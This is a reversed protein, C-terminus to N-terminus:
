FLIRLLHSNLKQKIQESSNMQSLQSPLATPINAKSLTQHIFGLTIIKNPKNRIRTHTHAQTHTHTRTNTHKAALHSRTTKASVNNQLHAHSIGALDGASRLRPPPFFFFDADTQGRLRLRVYFKGRRLDEADLQSTHRCPRQNEPGPLAILKWCRQQQERKLTSVSHFIFFFCRRHEEDERWLGRYSQSLPPLPLSPGEPFKVAPLVSHM